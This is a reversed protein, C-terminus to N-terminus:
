GARRAILASGPILDFIRESSSARELNRHALRAHERMIAEARAGERGEIAAVVCRHQDQAITLILRGEPSNGQARLPLATAALALSPVQLLRRRNWRTTRLHNMPESRSLTRM